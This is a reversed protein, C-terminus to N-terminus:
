LKEIALEMATRYNLVEQIDDQKRQDDVYSKAEFELVEELTAQTGEIKSSLVAEQTTLPALLVLPNILGQILGDYSALERNAQGILRTHEGWAIKSVPLSNPIYPVM